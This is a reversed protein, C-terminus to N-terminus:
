TWILCTTLWAKWGVQLFVRTEKLTVDGADFRSSKHALSTVNADTCDVSAARDITAYCYYVCRRNYSEFRNIIRRHCIIVIFESYIRVTSIADIM